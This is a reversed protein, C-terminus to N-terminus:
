GIFGSSFTEKNINSGYYAKKRRRGLFFAEQLLGHPNMRFRCIAANHVYEAGVKTALTIIFFGNNKFFHLATRYGPPKGYIILGLSKNSTM